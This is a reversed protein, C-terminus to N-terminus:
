FGFKSNSKVVFKSHLIRHVTVCKINGCVVFSDEGVVKHPAVLLKAVFKAVLDTVAHQCLGGGELQKELLERTRPTKKLIKKHPQQLSNM